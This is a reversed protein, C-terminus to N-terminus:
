LTLLSYIGELFLFGKVDGPNATLHRLRQSLADLFCVVPLVVKKQIFDDDLAFLLQTKHNLYPPPVLDTNEKGCCSGNSHVSSTKWM